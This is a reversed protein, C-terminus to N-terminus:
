RLEHWARAHEPTLAGAYYAQMPVAFM